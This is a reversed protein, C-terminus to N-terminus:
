AVNWIGISLATAYPFDVPRGGNRARAQHPPVSWTSQDAGCCNVAVGSLHSGVHNPVRPSVCGVGAVVRADVTSGVELLERAGSGAGRRKRATETRGSLEVRLSDGAFGTPKRNVPQLAADFLNTFTHLLREVGPVRADANRPRPVRCLEVQPRTDGPIVDCM